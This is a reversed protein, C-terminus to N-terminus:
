AELRGIIYKSDIGLVDMIKRLKESRPYFRGSEMKRLYDKGVILLSTLEKRTMKIELRREKVICGLRSVNSLIKIWDDEKPWKDRFHHIVHYIGKSGTICNGIEKPCDGILKFFRFPTGDQTRSYLCYGCEKGTFGSKYKVPYFSLNLDKLKQILFELDEKTFTNTALVISPIRNKDNRRRPLSGDGLYWHLLVTPTLRIDRPVIKQAHEGQREVYWKKRLNMLEPYPCSNIYFHMSNTNSEETIWSNNIGLDHILKKFWVLFNKDKATLKYNYYKRYNYNDFTVSADGLLTGNILELLFM